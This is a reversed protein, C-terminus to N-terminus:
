LIKFNRCVVLNTGAQWSAQKVVLVSKSSSSSRVYSRIYGNNKRLTFTIEILEFRQQESTSEKEGGHHKSQKSENEKRRHIRIFEYSKKQFTMHNILGRTRRVYIVTLGQQRGHPKTEKTIVYNCSHFTAIINYNNNNNYIYWLFYVHM